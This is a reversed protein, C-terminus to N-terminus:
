AGWRWLKRCALIILVMWLVSGIALLDLVGLPAIHLQQFIM